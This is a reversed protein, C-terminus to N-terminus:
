PWVHARCSVQVRWMSTRWVWCDLLASGPYLPVMSLLVLLLALVVVVAVAVRRIM